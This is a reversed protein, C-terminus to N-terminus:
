GRYLGNRRIYEAIEPTLADSDNGQQHATRAQTSSLAAHEPRLERTVIRTAFDRVIPEELYDAVADITMQARNTAILRHRNFFRTLTGAMDEYYKHDFVRVLTDFGVVFDFGIGPFTVTLADGQDILRAANTGLVAFRRDAENAALLMGMRHSLPAGFLGKDVNNTTLMAAAQTIGETELALDALALHARTPPNFASPLVAVRGAFPEGEDFRAARFGPSEHLEALQVAIQAITMNRDYVFRDHGRM